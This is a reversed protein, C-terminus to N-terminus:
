PRSGPSRLGARPSARDTLFLTSWLQRESGAPDNEPRSTTDLIMTTRRDADYRPWVPLGPAGPVGTAIFSVWAAHMSAALAPDFGAVLPALQPDAPNNWVYPLEAAHAARGQYPGSTAEKDFRYMWVAGGAGSQAEALRISPMWYEEATLARWRIEAADPPAMAADYHRLMREFRSPDLNSLSRGALPRSAARAALFLHSEDRNTGLLIPVRAVCGAAVAAEPMTPLLAGDVLPRLPYAYATGQLLAHQAELLRGADMRLIRAAQSDPLGLLELVRAAVAQGAETSQATRGGGSELIARQFLGRSAPSALLAAVDKAGASEGALTVRGPDGGFAAINDRVWRLLLLQDRLGNNGSGQFGAGLAAGLELFGFLGLRYNFTVCVVGSRAFRAGDYIPQLSAGSVNAGGHVWVLVPLGPSPPGPWPPGGAHPTFVNVSLCQESRPTGAWPAGLQQTAAPGFAVADRVGTWAAAAAPPRFRGPVRGYPIGLYCRVGDRIIGRVSGASTRVSSSSSPPMVPRAAGMVPLAPLARLLTRRCLRSM